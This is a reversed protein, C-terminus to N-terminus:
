DFYFMDESDIITVTRFGEDVNEDKTQNTITKGIWKFAKRDTKFLDYEDFGHYMVKLIYYGKNNKDHHHEITIKKIISHVIEKLKDFGASLDADKIKNNLREKRSGSKREIIKNELVDVTETQIRIQEKLKKLRGKLNGDDTFDPDILLDYIRQESLLNKKLEDQTKQLKEGLADVGNSEEGVKDLFSKLNHSRLLHRIIFAELKPLSLGRSECEIRYQFKGQCKYANDNGKLRKKGIVKNGCHGCYFIGNLLYHYEARKGSKKKNKQLNLNVREWLDEEIIAPVPFYEDGWKRKGKYVPNKIIDHIVNGRWRVNKKEFTTIEKTYKDVRKIKGKFQNFRTPTGEANLIKAITYAGNGALSLKFIREVIESEVEHKEFYGDAGKKYGYAVLGHSKGKKANEYITEKVKIGTKAAYLANALSMIGSFFQNEPVDLDLFRGGPYYKCGKETIISVFLNWITNNREIRSQDYCYVISIKEEQIGSILKTFEPRKSLDNSAGSIGEDIFVKYDQKMSKAFEIGQQKQVSISVDKGEEKNKSIRCYIGISM